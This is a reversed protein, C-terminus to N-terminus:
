SLAVYEDDVKITCSDFEEINTYYNIVTFLDKLDKQTCFIGAVGVQIFVKDQYNYTGEGYEIIKVNGKEIKAMQQKM